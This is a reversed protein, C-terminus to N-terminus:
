GSGFEKGKELSADIIELATKGTKRFACPLSRALGVGTGVFASVGGAILAAPEIVGSTFVTSAFGVGSDPKGIVSAGLWESLGEARKKFTQAQSKITDAVTANAADSRAARDDVSVSPLAAIPPIPNQDTARM